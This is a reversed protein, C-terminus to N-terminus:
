QVSRSLLLRRRWDRWSDYAEVLAWVDPQELAKAFVENPDKWRARADRSTWRFGLLAPRRRTWTEDTRRGSTRVGARRESGSAVLEARNPEVASRASATVAPVARYGAGGRLGLEKQCTWLGYAGVAWVVFGVATHRVASVLRRRWLHRRQAKWAARLVESQVSWVATPQPATEQLLREVQRLELEAPPVLDPERSESTM